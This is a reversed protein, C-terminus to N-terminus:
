PQPDSEPAPPVAVDVQAPTMELDVGISQRIRAVAVALQGLSRDYGLQLTLLNRIDQIVRDLDVTGNSLAQQDADLTQLAQPMLTSQYLVATEHAATAQEWLDRLTADYRLRLDEVSAHAAFHKWTAEDEIADYKASWLPISLQAGLSWADQGVTVVTSPPRNDDIAYWSAGVSLDPRRKMRAVEIGWRSAHTRLEAAIIAPQREWALQRLFEYSWNPLETPLSEPLPIPTDASRGAQRNMEAQLSRVQQRTTVLQEELRGLEVTLLTVDGASGRNQALRATVLNNLSELLQQNAEITELQRGLVYLKAWGTRLDGVVKLREALYMQQMSMAEYCAQQAQASLRDLWPFMQMVTLNARQSGAATEIPSAFINTGITPDPLKDTYRVKAWAASTEQQLRRLEPNASEASIELSELEDVITLQAVTQEDSVTVVNTPIATEDSVTETEAHAAQHLDSLEKAAPRNIPAESTKVAIYSSNAHLPVSSIHASRCGGATFLVLLCMPGVAHSVSYISRPFVLSRRM